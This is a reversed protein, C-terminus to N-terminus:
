AYGFTKVHLVERVHGEDHELALKQALVIDCVPWDPAFGTNQIPFQPRFCVMSGTSEDCVNFTSGYHITYKGGLSGIVEFCRGVRWQERQQLTLWLLLLNEARENSDNRPQYDRALSSPCLVVMALVMSLGFMSIIISIAPLM